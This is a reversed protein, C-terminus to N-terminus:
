AGDVDVGSDDLVDCHHPVGHGQHWRGGTRRDHPDRDILRLLRLRLLRCRRAAGDFLNRRRDADGTSDPWWPTSEAITTGITGAFPQDAGRESM